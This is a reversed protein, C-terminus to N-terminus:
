FSSHSAGLHDQGCPCCLQNVTYTMCKMYKKGEAGTVFAGAMDCLHWERHHFCWGTCTQLKTPLFTPFVTRLDTLHQSGGGEIAHMPFPFVSHQKPHPRRIELECMEVCGAPEATFKLSTLPVVMLSKKKGMSIIGLKCRVYKFLVHPFAHNKWLLDSLQSTQLLFSFARPLVPWSM